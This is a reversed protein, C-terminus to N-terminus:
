ITIKGFKNEYETRAKESKLLIKKASNSVMPYKEKDVTDYIEKVTQYGKIMPEKDLFDIHSFISLMITTTYENVPALKIISEKVFNRGEDTLLSKRKNFGFRMYTTRQDNAQDIRFEPLSTIYKILDIVDDSDCSSTIALFVEWRVLNEKGYKEFEKFFEMRDKAKGDLYLGAALNRESAAKGKFFEEKILEYIEEKESRALLALALGKVTRNKIEKVLRELYRGEFVKNKREEYIRRIENFYKKSIATSIKKKVQYSEEYKYAFEPDEVGDFNALISAGVEDMLEKDNLLEFYIDIIEERVESKPNKLLRTKETDMLKYFAMYKTIINKDNRVQLFLEEENINKDIIKGYFSFDRSLSVFGPKENINEFEITKEKDEVFITEEIIEDGNEKCLAIKIPFQWITKNNVQKLSVIYKKENENYQREIEVKPFGTKTLWPEAFKKFDIETFEDMINLWDETKANSHKYTEHYKALAKVFNKEGLVLQTMKIFEPSKIYTIDTILDDPSNFGEPIIPLATTGEDQNLVGNDPAILSLVEQLRGYNKGFLFEHQEKEIHVTVAENLWLEFPSWGTVESGNLNHYFEHTKVGIIYETIGDSSDPFPLMRNTSITTNGVNEMGGFNSNQMSIERYVTGTYEYGWTRGESLKKIEERITELDENNKKKEERIQILKYIKKAVEENEYKDKGTFLHIFMIGEHMIELGKEALEKSTGIPALLEMTFKHGNPYEFERKFTEYTGLGLFFLYPAMPTKMNEYILKVRGNGLNVPGEILDGNTIINTYKEDGIITTRYTIKANMEDFSPILRQFGWQQCQTIMTPPAGEPTEDYYMGELINKTPKFTNKTSIEFETNASIEEDFKIIVKDKKKDYNWEISCLNCKVEQIELNKANLELEKIAENKTKIKISSKVKTHDPYVDFEIDMHEPKVKLEKFDEQTYKYLKNM